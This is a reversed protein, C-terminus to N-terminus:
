KPQAMSGAAGAVLRGGGGKVRGHQAEIRYVIAAAGESEGEVEVNAAAAMRDSCDVWCTTDHPTLLLVRPPARPM